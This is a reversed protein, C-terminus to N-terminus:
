LEGKKQICISVEPRLGRKLSCKILEKNKECIAANDQPICVSSLSNIGYFVLLLCYNM